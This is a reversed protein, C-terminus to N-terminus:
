IQEKKQHFGSARLGEGDGHFHFGGMVPAGSAPAGAGRPAARV